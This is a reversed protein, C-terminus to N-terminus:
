CVFINVPIPTPTIPKVSPEEEESEKGSVTVDSPGIAIDNYYKGRPKSISDEDLDVSEIEKNSDLSDQLDEQIVWPDEKSSFKSSIQISILEEKQSEEESSQDLVVEKKSDFTLSSSGLNVEGEPAPIGFSSKLSSTM